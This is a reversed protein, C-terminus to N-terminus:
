ESIMKKPDPLKHNIRLIAVTLLVVPIFLILAQGDHSLKAYLGTAVILICCAAGIAAIWIFANACLAQALDWNKQSATSKRTRFGFLANITQPPKYKLIMGFTLILLIMCLYAILVGM